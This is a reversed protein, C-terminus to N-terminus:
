SLPSIDGLQGITRIVNEYWEIYREITTEVFEMVYKILIKRAITKLFFFVM